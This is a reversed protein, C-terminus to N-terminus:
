PPEPSREIEEVLLDEITRALAAVTPRDFMTRLSIEVNFARTVRSALQTALLSHGGLEFWNDHVGVQPVGLIQSWMRALAEELEGKPAVYPTRLDRAARGPPPLARRDLKGNSTVPLARMPVFASPVMYSPLNRALFARLEPILRRAVDARLPDSALPGAPEEAPARWAAPRVPPSGARTFLAEFRGDARSGTWELSVDYGLEALAWLDEPDVGPSDEGLARRIAEATPPAGPSRILEVLRAERSVRANPIGSVAVTGEAGAALVERLRALTLGDEAWRRVPVDRETWAPPGVHILVDYRFCSLENRARGRELLVQVAGVRPNRRPLSAFVEPALVLQKEHFVQDEIRRALEQSTTADSARHLEVSAHFPELLALNRLDGLFIFGGPRVAEVAGAVVRLLYDLSPFYQAVSICIAADFSGPAIGSFDDAPRQDLRVASYGPRKAIERRLFELPRSSLDTALYDACSPALRFMMLGSGSGLDLIRSPKRAAIREATQEVWVRVEDAPLPEGTYSSEWGEIYFTPDIDPGVQQYLDDFVAKWQATHSSTREATKDEEPDPALQAPDAVVYAVLENEGTADAHVAMAADRVAPHTRIVAEVEGLEFRAGRVKVQHDARGLFELNGDPLWRALDGSRYMRDGPVPSFPDPLFREATLEPRGIYGRSLCAGAVYIEGAVGAPVPEMRGDLVYFRTNRFPRGAPVLRDDGLDPSPEESSSNDITAESMGYSNVLRTRPGCLRRFRRYESVFWADSGVVLVRMFDLANGSEELWTVLSRLATPVFEAWDIRERRMLAYLRPPELLLERPCLVLRKGFCLARVLDQSFVDFSFGAMQLYHEGASRLGYIEDWARAGSSLNGHTVMVGKPRGTSGSTFVVYALNAPSTTVPPNEASRREIEAAEDRLSLVRAGGASLEEPLRDAAIVLAAGARELMYALRETPYTPDLPVYAGGAKVVALVAVVMDISRDLFLGVRQDPGVGAARLHHALRNARRNLEAYTLEEDGWRLAPRDANRAASEEFLAQFGAAPPEVDAGMNGWQGLIERREEAALIPLSSIGREPAAVAAELLALYREVFRDITKAEFLDTAYEVAGAITGGPASPTLFLTLDIKSARVPLEVIEAQLRPLELRPIPANQFVLGVDILPIRGPDRQPQLAEVIREFPVDQHAFAELCVERAQAVVDRFAPAGDLRARLVLTNVFCGVLPEIERRNRNAISSGVCLDRQGTIRHLLVQFASLFVMFPTADLRRALAEVREVLAPPVTFPRTAGAFTREGSRPRDAPLHLATPMGQLRRKWVELSGALADGEFRRRQWVAFDAYQVPLPPLAPLTGTAFARYLEGLDRLLIGMSWGDAAAHHVAIALLHEEAGLRFLRARLPPARTLDFPEAVMADIERQVAAEREGAPLDARDLVPLPLEAEPRVLQVVGDDGSVFATRLAEHRALLAQLGRSLAGTDLPGRLRLAGAIHYAQKSAVVQDALWIRQQAFSLPLAGQRPAPVLPAEPVAAPRRSRLHAALRAATPAEFVDRVSVPIGLAQQVSSALVTALLSNGGSAFFDDQAGLGAGGLAGHFLALMRAEDEALEGSPTPAPAAAPASWRHLTPLGGELFAARCAQRQVKGSTTKPVAGGGVLAVAHLAVGTLEFVTARIAEVVAAPDAEARRHDVEQVLAAQEEGEVEISFAAGCGARVAPHAREAAAEIDQPYHNTGSLVILDKRRGTVYLEGGRLFGLDGTRLFGGDGAATRAGFVEATADPRRWYGKGVSPGAVWIEGVQGEPLAAGSGPDVVAVRHEPPPAGCGVRPRGGHAVVRPGQSSAGGTVLLTSEALGYCPLFAERRFGAPAFAQAFRDLTEPRIPEAGNFAVKWSSLDLGERDAAPLRRICLEFAFNPGGSVTGRHRAIARLWRAPRELFAATPLLVGRAGVYLPHLVNGILGMDHSLPLWGVVVSREDTGFAAAIARQNADLNEHTLVVGRPASTSGSTYQVIAPAGPDVPREEWREADADPLDAPVLRGRVAPHSAGLLSALDEGSRRGALALEAGSDSAIAHVRARTRPDVPAYAPVAIAGAYLCGFLSTVVDEDSDHVLLVPKGAAGRKRLTVAIARARRDLAGCTLTRETQEGDILFTHAVRDPEREARRRLMLVLSSMM